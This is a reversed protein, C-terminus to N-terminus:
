CSSVEIGYRKRWSALTDASVGLKAAADTMSAAGRIAETIIDKPHRGSSSVERRLAYPVRDVSVNEM